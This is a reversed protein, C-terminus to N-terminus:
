NNFWETSYLIPVSHVTFYVMFFLLLLLNVYSSNHDTYFNDWYCATNHSMSAGVNERSLRSLYPLLTTLSIHRIFAMNDEM